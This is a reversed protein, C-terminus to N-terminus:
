RLGGVYESFMMKVADPSLVVDEPRSEWELDEPLTLRHLLGEENDRVKFQTPKKIAGTELASNCKPQSPPL